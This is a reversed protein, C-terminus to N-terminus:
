YLRLNDETLYGLTPSIARQSVQFSLSSSLLLQHPAPFLIVLVPIDERDRVMVLASPSSLPLAETTLKAM